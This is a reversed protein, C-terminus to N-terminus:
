LYLMKAILYATRELWEASKTLSENLSVPGPVISFVADFYKYVENDTKEPVSGGVFIIKKGKKRTRKSIIYPAKGGLSQEDLKGEGTIVIDAKDLHNDFDCFDLIKEAGDQIEINFFASLGAPTGGAAGAGEFESVDKGTKKMLLNAFHEFSKELEQMNTKGNDKQTGFIRVAGKSGTLPNDVDCFIRFRIDEYYKMVEKEPLVIEVIKGLHIGGAPIENGNSDMFKFGLIKLIGTGMDMSATGGVFLNVIKVDDDLAKKILIGTGETNSDSANKEPEKLLHLGTASAMEIFVEKGSFACEGSIERNLPDVTQFKKKRLGLNRVLVELSGDGGDAVPLLDINEPPIINQLGKKIAESVDVSSLSEKFANPAILLRLKGKRINM